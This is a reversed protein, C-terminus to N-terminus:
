TGSRWSVAGAAGAGPPRVQGGVAGTTGTLSTGGRVGGGKGGYPDVPTISNPDIMPGAPGYDKTAFKAFSNFQDQKHRRDVLSWQRGLAQMYVQNQDSKEAIAQKAKADRKAARDGFFGSIFASAVAGIVLAM